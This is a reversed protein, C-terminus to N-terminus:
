PSFRWGIIRELDVCAVYPCTDWRGPGVSDPPLIVVYRLGEIAAIKRMQLAVIFRVEQCEAGILSPDQRVPGLGNNHVRAEPCVSPCNIKPSNDNHRIMDV